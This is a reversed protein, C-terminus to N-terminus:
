LIWTKRLSTWIGPYYPCKKPAFSVVCAINSNFFVGINELKFNWAETEQGIKVNKDTVYFTCDCTDPTFFCSM